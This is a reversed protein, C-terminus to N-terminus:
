QNPLDLARLLLWPDYKDHPIILETTGVDRIAVTCIVAAPDADVDFIAARKLSPEAALMALVKQRRRAVRPDSVQECVASRALDLLNM